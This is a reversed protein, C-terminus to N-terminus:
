QCDPERCIGVAQNMPLGGTIGIIGRLPPQGQQGLYQVAMFDRNDLSQTVRDIVFKAQYQLRQYLNMAAFKQGMHATHLMLFAKFMYYLLFLLFPLYLSMELAAQGSSHNGKKAVM